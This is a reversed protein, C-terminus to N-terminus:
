STSWLPFFKSGTESQTADSEESLLLRVAFWMGDLCCDVASIHINGSQIFLHRGYQCEEKPKSKSWMVTMPMENQM